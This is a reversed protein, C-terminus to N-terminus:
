LNVAKTDLNNFFIIQTFIHVVSLERQLYSAEHSYKNLGIEYLM